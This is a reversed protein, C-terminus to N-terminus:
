ERDPWRWVQVPRGNTSFRTEVRANEGVGYSSEYGRIIAFVNAIARPEWADALYRYRQKVEADSLERGAIEVHIDYRTHQDYPAWCFFRENVFRAHVIAGVQLALFACGIVHRWSVGARGLRHEGPRQGSVM